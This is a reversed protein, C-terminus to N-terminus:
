VDKKLSIFADWLYGTFVCNEYDSLSCSACEKDACSSRKAGGSTHGLILFYIFLILLFFILLFLILLFNICGVVWSFECSLIKLVLECIGATVTM